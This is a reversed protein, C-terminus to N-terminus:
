HSSNVPSFIGNFGIEEVIKGTKTDRKIIMDDATNWKGDSGASHATLTSHNSKDDNLTLKIQNGWGDRFRNSTGVIKILWSQYMRLEANSNPIDFKVEPFPLISADPFAWEPRPRKKMYRLWYTPGGSLSKLLQKTQYAPQMVFTWRSEVRIGSGLYRKSNCVTIGAVVTTVDDRKTTRLQFNRTTGENVKTSNKLVRAYSGWASELYSSRNNPLLLGFVKYQFKINETIDRMRMSATPLQPTVIFWIFYLAILIIISLLVLSPLGIRGLHQTNM